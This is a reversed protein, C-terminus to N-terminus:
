GYHAKRHCNPCLAIANEVTDEGNSALPVRHHVELYPTNDKRRPFPAPKDCSECTGSARHLVVAVVDPNRAFMYSTVSVRAPMRDAIALRQMRVALSDKLSEEVQREFSQEVAERLEQGSSLHIEVESFFSDASRQVPTRTRGGWGHVALGTCISTLPRLQFRRCDRTPSERDFQRYADSSVELNTGLASVGTVRYVQFVRDKVIVAVVAIRPRSPHYYDYKSGIPQIATYEDVSVNHARLRDISENSHRLLM